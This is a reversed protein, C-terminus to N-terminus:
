GADAHPGPEAPEVPVSRHSAESGSPFIRVLMAASTGIQQFDDAAQSIIGQAKEIIDKYKEDHTSLYQAMAVGLATSGITSVNRLANAADQVAMAATQSVAQFAKGSASDEVQTSGIVQDRVLKLTAAAPPEQSQTRPPIM